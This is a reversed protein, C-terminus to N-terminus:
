IEVWNIAVTSSVVIAGMSPNSCWKAIEAAILASDETPLDTVVVAKFRAGDRVIHIAAEIKQIPLGQDRDAFPM